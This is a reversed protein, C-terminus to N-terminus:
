PAPAPHVFFLVKFDHASVWAGPHHSFGAKVSTSDANQAGAQIIQPGEAELLAPDKDCARLIAAHGSRAPDPSPYLVVVLQGQNALDQARSPSDVPSWGLGPGDKRLWEAQATALYNESHEPPHLM